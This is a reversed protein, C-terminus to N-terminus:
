IKGDKVHRVQMITLCVPLWPWRHSRLISKNWYTVLQGLQSVQGCLSYSRAPYGPFRPETGPVSLSIRTDVGKEVGCRHRRCVVCVERTTATYTCSHLSCYYLKFYYTCLVCNRNIKIYMNGVDCCKRLLGRYHCRGFNTDPVNGTRFESPVGVLTEGPEVRADEGGLFNRWSGSGEWKMELEDSVLWVIM